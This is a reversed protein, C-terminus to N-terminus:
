RKEIGAPQIGGPSPLRESAAPASDKKDDDPKPPPPPPDHLHSIPQLDHPKMALECVTADIKEAVPHLCGTLVLLSLTLGRRLHRFM